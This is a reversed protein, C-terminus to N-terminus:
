SRGEGIEIVDGKHIASKEVLSIPDDINCSLPATRKRTGITCRAHVILHVSIRLITTTAGDLVNEILKVLNSVIAGKGVHDKKIIGKGDIM